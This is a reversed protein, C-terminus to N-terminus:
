LNFNFPIALQNPDEMDDDGQKSADLLRKYTAGDICLQAICEYDAELKSRSLSWNVQFNGNLFKELDEAIMYIRLHNM